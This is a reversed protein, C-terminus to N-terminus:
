SVYDAEFFPENVTREASVRLGALGVRLRALNYDLREAQLVLGYNRQVTTVAYRLAAARVFPAHALMVLVVVALIAIAMWRTARVVRSGPRGRSGEAAESSEARVKVTRPAAPEENM